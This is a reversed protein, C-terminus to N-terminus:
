NDYGMIQAYTEGTDGYYDDEDSLHSLCPERYGCSQSFTANPYAKQAEELTDFSDLFSRKEQGALVSSRPYTSYEYVGYSDNSYTAGQSPYEITIYSSM